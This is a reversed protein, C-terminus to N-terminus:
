PQRYVAGHAHIPKTGASSASEAGDQGSGRCQRSLSLAARWGVSCGCSNHFV